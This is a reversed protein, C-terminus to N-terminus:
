DFSKGLSSLLPVKAYPSKLCPSIAAENRSGKNLETSKMTVAAIFLPKM